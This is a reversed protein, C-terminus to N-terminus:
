LGLLYHYLARAIARGFARASTITVEAGSATAYPIEVLLSAAVGPITGIWRESTRPAGSMTNWEVGFPLNNRTFYPLGGHSEGELLQCFRRGQATLAEDPGEVFHIVEHRGGRMWPCHLDLYFRLRGEAWAPLLERIARTTPYLSGEPGYDEWHDHPHRAKGQDGDEVGDKDVFPVALFEVNDRLWGGEQSGTLVEELLGELSYTAISECAHHRSTLFVRHAARGDLRGARLLEVPRGKDSHCLIDPRLYPSHAHRQLFRALHEQLYPITFSLRVDDAGAPLHYWFSQGDVQEIGLWRWTQGGDDSVAPGRAGIAPSATFRFTLTRGAGGRVRLSWYFWDRSTDRLDQHLSITDGQIQDIVINGGAFDADLNLM